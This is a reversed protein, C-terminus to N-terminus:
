RGGCYTRATEIRRCADALRKWGLEGIERSELVDHAIFAAVTVEFGVVELIDAAPIRARSPPLAHGLPQDFLDGLTLGMADLVAGVDCGGFDHLLLRGDDAQRISLSPTRDAHGPCKALWRNPGTQRIGQLRELVREAANM